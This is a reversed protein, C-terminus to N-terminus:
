CTIHFLGGWHVQFMKANMLFPNPDEEGRKLTSIKGWFPKFGGGFFVERDYGFNVVAITELPIRNRGVM